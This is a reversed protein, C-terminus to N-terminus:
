DAARVSRRVHDGDLRIRGEVIGRV